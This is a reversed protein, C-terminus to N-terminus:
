VLHQWGGQGGCCPCRWDLVHQPLELELHILREVGRVGGQPETVLPMPLVNSCDVKEGFFGGGTGEAACTTRWRRRLAFLEAMPQPGAIAQWGEFLDQQM